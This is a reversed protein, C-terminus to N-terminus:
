AWSMALRKALRLTVVGCITINPMVPPRMGQGAANVINSTHRWTLGTVLQV